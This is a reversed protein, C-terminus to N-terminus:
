RSCATASCTSGSSRTGPRRASSPRPSATRRSSASCCTATSREDGTLDADDLGSLEAPWRDIFALREARGAETLDPWRDDHAHMAPPRRPCDPPPAFFEALFADIRAAFDSM